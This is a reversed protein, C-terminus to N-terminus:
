STSQVPKGGTHISRSIQKNVLDIEYYTGDQTAWCYYYRGDRSVKNAHSQLMSGGEPLDSIKVHYISDDNLDIIDVNQGKHNTVVVYNLPNSFDAHGCHNGLVWTRSTLTWTTLDIIYGIGDPGHKKYVPVFLITGASNIGFHHISGVDGQDNLTIIDPSSFTGTSSNFTMRWMQPMVGTGEEGEIAAYFVRDQFLHGAEVSRLSHCGTPLSVTDTLTLTYPPMDENVRYVQINTNHRDLLAVHNADLWVSHGTANGGDNGHPPNGTDQGVTAVVKDTDVDVLVMWPEVKTSIAHMRRYKNFAGSSRPHHPIDVKKLWEGTVANVVEFHDYGATRVYLKDTDGARDVSGAHAGPTLPIDRAVSMHKSSMGLVRDDEEDAWYIYDWTYDTRERQIEDLDVPITVDILNLNIDKSLTIHNLKDKEDQTISLNKDWFRLGNTKSKLIYDDEIPYGLSDEKQDWYNYNTNVRDINGDVTLGTFKSKYAM